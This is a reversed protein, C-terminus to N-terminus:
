HRTHTVYNPYSTETTHKRTALYPVHKNKAVLKSKVIPFSTTSCISMKHSVFARSPLLLKGKANLMNIGLKSVMHM